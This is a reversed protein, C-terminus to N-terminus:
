TYYRPTVRLIDFNGIKVTFTSIFVPSNGRTRRRIAADGKSYCIKKLAMEDRLPTM